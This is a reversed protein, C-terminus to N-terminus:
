KICVFKHFILFFFIFFYVMNWIILHIKQKFHLMLSFFYRMEVPFYLSYLDCKLDTGGFGFGPKFMPM